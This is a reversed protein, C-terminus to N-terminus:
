PARPRKRVHALLDLGSMGPMRMDTVVLHIEPTAPDELIELAAEGSAAQTVAVEEDELIGALTYRVGDDDDVVLAHPKM